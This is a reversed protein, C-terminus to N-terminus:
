YEKGPRSGAQNTERSHTKTKETEPISEKQPTYPPVSRLVCPPSPAAPAIGAPIPETKM